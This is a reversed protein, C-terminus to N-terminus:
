IGVMIGRMVTEFDASQPAHIEVADACFMLGVTNACNWRRASTAWCASRFASWERGARWPSPCLDHSLDPFAHSELRDALARVKDLVRGPITFNKVIRIGNGWQLLAGDSPAKMGPQAQYWRRWHDILLAGQDGELFQREALSYDHYLAPRRPRRRAM